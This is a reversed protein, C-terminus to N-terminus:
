LKKLEHEETYFDAPFGNINRWLEYWIPVDNLLAISQAGNGIRMKDPWKRDDNDEVVLVRYRGEDNTTNEIAYIKGGFTGYSAEPWGGFVVAPFGDFVFRTRTGVKLISVDLPSVFIEVALQIKDPVILGLKEGDKVMEGTGTTKLQVIQGSQQAVIFYFDNRATYNNVQNSLKAIEADTTAATSLAQLRDGEAKLIKEQYDQGVASLEIKINGFENKSNFYKNEAGIKKALMSQLYQNRQEFQTLSVLGSDYMQKQRDYQKKAISYDNAAAIWEISDATIKQLQQILKNKTQNIKNEKNAALAEKQNAAADAKSQYFVSSNAKADLQTKVNQILQPDLYEEKVESIQLITDGKEVFDGEKIHWKVVRGAIVANIETPRESQQLTTVKGNSRVNQTWPLFLLIVFLILISYIAVQRSRSIRYNLIHGIAEM